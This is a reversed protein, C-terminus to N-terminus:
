NSSSWSPVRGGTPSSCRSTRPVTASRLSTLYERRLGYDHSTSSDVEDPWRTADLRRHLDTVAQPHTEFQFPEITNM